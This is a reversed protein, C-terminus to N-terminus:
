GPVRAMGISYTAKAGTIPTFLGKSIVRRKIERGCRFRPTLHKRNACYGVCSQDTQMSSLSMGSIIQRIIM